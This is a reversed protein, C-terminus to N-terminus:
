LRGAAAADGAGGGLPLTVMAAMGPKLRPDPHIEVKVGFVQDNRQDLTQVNRPTYEAQSRIESVRGPFSLGKWSDVTLAAPQGLRVLGLKPEPVYVRVWIQDPELLTAVPSNAAVLDGPRLDITQVLGAAPAAVLMERRQRELYALHREAQALQAGSSSVDERTGGRLAALYAERAKIARTRADDYTQQSIAGGALLRQQRQRETEAFDADARLQEREEQRPGIRTRQLLARMQAVAARQESIQLDILDPEFTVLPQGEAVVDGEKVLVSAIRGGLLSGVEVTRAEITGALVLHDHDSRLFTFGLAAAALLLVALVVVILRAKKKM